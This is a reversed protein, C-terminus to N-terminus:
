PASVAEGGNASGLAGWVGWRSVGSEQPSKIIVSSDTEGSTLSNISSTIFHISGDGFLCNVGSTHNSSATGLALGNGYDNGNCSAMNPPLVTSLGFRTILGSAWM